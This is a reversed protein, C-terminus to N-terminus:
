KDELIMKFLAGCLDESDFLKERGALSDWSASDILNEVLMGWGILHRQEPIPMERRTVSAADRHVKFKYARDRNFRGCRAKAQQHSRVDSLFSIPLCTFGLRLLNLEVNSSVARTASADHRRPRGSFM